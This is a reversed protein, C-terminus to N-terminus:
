VVPEVPRRALQSWAASCRCPSRVGMTPRGLLLPAAPCAHQHSLTDRPDRHPVRTRTHKCRVSMALVSSLFTRAVCFFLRLAVDHGMATMSRAEGKREGSVRWSRWCVLSEDDLCTGGLARTLSCALHVPQHADTMNLAAALTQRAELGEDDKSDLRTNLALALTQRDAEGMGAVETMDEWKLWKPLVVEQNADLQPRLQSPDLRSAAEAGVYEGAIERALREGEEEMEGLVRARSSLTKSVDAGEGARAAVRHGQAEGEGEGRGGAGAGAEQPVARATSVIHSLFSSRSCARPVEEEGSAQKGKDAGLARVQAQAQAQPHAGEQRAADPGADAESEDESENYAKGGISVHAPLPVLSM